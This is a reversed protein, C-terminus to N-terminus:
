DMDAQNQDDTEIVIVNPQAQKKNRKRQAATVKGPCPAQIAPCKKGKSNGKATAAGSASPGAASAGPYAAWCLVVAGALAAVLSSRKRGASLMSSSTVRPSVSPQARGARM